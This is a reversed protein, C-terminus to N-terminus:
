EARLAIVPDVRAARWAPLATALMAITGMLVSVAAFTLPDHTSVGYLMKDLMKSLLFAGILGVVVGGAVLVLGQQLVLRVVRMKDAGLAVRIGIERTRQTVLYYIVGYLGSVALALAVGAFIAFLALTLKRGSLSQEIVENMSRINLLAVDRAVDRVAQRVQPVISAEPVATKVVLSMDGGSWDARSDTYPTYMEPNPPVDLGSQKVNSAVGIIEFETVNPPLGQLLHRGIANEGRMLSQVAAENVITKRTGITDDSETFDRGAELRIGMTALFGPSVVRVEFLPESGPEPWAKRDVWFSATNGSQDIPLLSNLAASRVGPIARVRGLMPRLLENTEIDASRLLRRPVAVRATLVRESVIGPDTSQLAVFGRMLLGAGVLLMLSLAVQAVVLASRFRRMEGGSTTKVTLGTLGGRLKDSSLQLAPAVGFALGCLVAAGLMVLMVRFDIPIQTGVPLAQPGLTILVKLLAWSVGLGLTAGFLALVISETLFQRALQGRSAGLAVRVAVDKQRAANRALLLNAVNACAILLVLFVAGLLVYLMRRVDGVVSERLGVVATSRKAMSNPEVIAIRAAVQKLELDGQELTVGPKLLAVVQLWHWGRARPDVAQPPPVFPAYLDVARPGVPFNFGAPMVGVVTFPTSELTVTKGVISPDSGFRRRWLAEGLILVRNKGRVEEEPLFVRGLIPKTGLIPFVDAALMGERLREPEGDGDMTISSVYYAGMREFSNTAGKKWDMLNLYNVSGYGPQDQMTEFLRVVRAVNPYPLPRILVANVISFIATNAGIGLAFTILAIVTFGPARLLTRFAFRIDRGLDDGLTLGRADRIEEKHRNMSGFEKHTLARVDAPSHGHAVHREAAMEMHFRLEEDVEREFARRGVFHRLRRLARRFAYLM